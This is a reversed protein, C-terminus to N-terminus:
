SCVCFILWRCVGPMREAESTDVLEIEGCGIKSTVFVAHLQGSMAPMDDIFQSEGSTQKVSDLKPTPQTLPYQSKDTEYDQKGKSREPRTLVAGGPVESKDQETLSLFAQMCICVYWSFVKPTNLYNLSTVHLLLVKHLLSKALQQRVQSSAQIVESNFNLKDISSECDTLFCCM